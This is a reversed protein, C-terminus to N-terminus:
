DCTSHPRQVHIPLATVSGNVGTWISYLRRRKRIRLATIRKTSTGKTSSAVREYAEAGGASKDAPIATVIAPIIMEMAYTHRTQSHGTHPILNHLPPTPVKPPFHRPQWVWSYM